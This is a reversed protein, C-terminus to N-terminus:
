IPEDKKNATHINPLPETTQGGLVAEAVVAFDSLQKEVAVVRVILVAERAEDLQAAGGVSQLSKNRRAVLVVQRQVHEADALRPVLHERADFLKTGLSCDILHEEQVLTFPSRKSERGGVLRRKRHQLAHDKQALQVDLLPVDQVDGVKVEAKRQWRM